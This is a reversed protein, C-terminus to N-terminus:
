ALHLSQHVIQVIHCQYLNLITQEHGIESLQTSDDGHVKIWHAQWEFEIRRCNTQVVKKILHVETTCQLMSFVTEWWHHVLERWDPHEELPLRYSANKQNLSNSLKGRESTSCRKCNCVKTSAFATKKLKQEKLSFIHLIIYQDRCQYCRYGSQYFM